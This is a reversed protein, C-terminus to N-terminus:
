KLAYIRITPNHFGYSGYRPVFEAMLRHSAFFREYFQRTEASAPLLRLFREYMFSSAVAIDANELQDRDRELSYIYTAACASPLAPVYAPVLVGGSNLAGELVIRASGCAHERLWAAAAQRTDPQMASTLRVSSLLPGAVVIALLGIAARRERSLQTGARWATAALIALFPLLPVVHRDANPPPKYPSSEFILYLALVTIVLLRDAPARRWLALLIGIVALVTPLLGFGPVISYQLHYTWVYAFPWVRIGAMGTFANGGEHAAGRVFGMVDLLAFPTTLLFGVAAATVVRRTATGAADSEPASRGRERVALGPLAVFLLGTYKTGAAIGALLGAVVSDRPAGRSVIRLSAILVGTAWFALPVDEKLYHSCVVHLPAVALLLAAVLGVFTDYAYVGAVFTLGVTATALLAVTLRGARVAAQEDIGTGGPHQLRLTLAAAYLMFSPHYFSGPHLDGAAIRAVARAKLLEDPHYWEPLGFHLNWLRLGLALAVVTGGCLARPFGSPSHSVM